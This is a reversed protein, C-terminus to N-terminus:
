TKILLSENLPFYSLCSLYHLSKTSDLCAVDDGAKSGSGGRRYCYECSSNM